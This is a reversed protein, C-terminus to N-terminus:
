RNGVARALATRIRAFLRKAKARDSHQAANEAMFAVPVACQRLLPELNTSRPAPNSVQSRRSPATRSVGISERQAIGASKM